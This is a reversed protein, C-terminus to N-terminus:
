QTKFPKGNRIFYLTFSIKIVILLQYRFATYRFSLILSQLFFFSTYGAFLFGKATNIRQFYQLIIVVFVLLVVCTSLMAFIAGVRRNRMALMYIYFGYGIMVTMVVLFPNILRTFIDPPFVLVIVSFGICLFVLTNIIYKNSDKPYLNRTYLTFFAISSFFSLYELHLTM